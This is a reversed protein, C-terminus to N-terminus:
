TKPRPLEKTAICDGCEVYTACIYYDSSLAYLPIEMMYYDGSINKNATLISHLFKKTCLLIKINKNIPIPSHITYYVRLLCEEEDPIYVRKTLYPSSVYISANVEKCGESFIFSFNYSYLHFEWLIGYSIFILGILIASIIALKKNTNKDKIRMLFSSLLILLGGILLSISTRVDNSLVITGAVFLYLSICRLSYIKNKFIIMIAIGILIAPLLIFFVADIIDSM